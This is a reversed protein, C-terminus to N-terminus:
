VNESVGLSYIFCLPQNTEDDSTFNWKWSYLWAGNRIRLGGHLLNQPGEGHAVSGAQGCSAEPCQSGDLAWPTSTPADGKGWGPLHCAGLSHDGWSVRATGGAGWGLM